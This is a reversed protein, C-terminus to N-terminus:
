VRGSGEPEPGRHEQRLHDGANHAGCGNPQEVLRLLVSRNRQLLSQHDHVSQVWSLFDARSMDRKAYNCKSCCPAVNDLVYGRSSDIRDIGGGDGGCYDCPSSFLSEFEQFSLRMEVGKAKANCKYMSWRDRLVREKEPLRRKDAGRKAAASKACNACLSIIGLRVKTARATREKGCACRFRVQPHRNKAGKISELIEIM